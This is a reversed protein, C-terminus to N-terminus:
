PMGLRAACSASGLWTHPNGAWCWGLKPRRESIWLATVRKDGSRSGLLSFGRGEAVSEPHQTAVAIGEDVTLPSRGEARIIELADNPTVNRTATGTDVDLLLYASASPLGLGDIPFFRELDERDLVTFGAQERREIRTVADFAPVVESKVVLAFAGEAPLWPRLAELSGVFEDESMRALGPYGRGRLNELQREFEASQGSM